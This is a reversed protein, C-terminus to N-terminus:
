QPHERLVKRWQAQSERLDQLPPNRYDVYKVGSVLGRENLKQVRASGAMGQYCVVGALVRAGNYTARARKDWGLCEVLRPLANPMSRLAQVAKESGTFGYDDDDGYYQGEVTLAEAILSDIQDPSAAGRL